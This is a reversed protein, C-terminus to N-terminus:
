DQLFLSKGLLVLSVNPIKTIATVTFELGLNKGLPKGHRWRGELWAKGKKLDVPMRFTEQFMQPDHTPPESM